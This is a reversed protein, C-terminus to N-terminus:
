EPDAPSSDYFRRLVRCIALSVWRNTEKDQSRLLSLDFLGDERQRGALWDLAEKVKSEEKEFGLRSLTDLTSVIDTFWFPFSVSKWYSAARRDAYKDPEFIRSALLRGAHEAPSLERYSPHVAFARLVMGTILHSFPKSRDPLLPDSQAFADQTRMGLTRLPIAWGGDDQRVSLLWQFGKEIRPDSTYGAKFLIEMIAASYNPAYQTGYIGRFDGEERQCSFLFESATQVAKHQNNFAYKEVLIGLNRFTEIQFYDEKSRDSSAKGPYIWSGDPQQKRLIKALEPLDWLIEKSISNDGALDQNTFFVIAPNGSALLTPIPDVALPTKWPTM